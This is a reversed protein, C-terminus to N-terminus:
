RTRADVAASSAADTYQLAAPTGASSRRRWMAEALVSAGLIPLTAYALRPGTGTVFSRWWGVRRLEAVQALTRAAEPTAALDRQAEILASDVVCLVRVAWCWAPAGSATLARVEHERCVLEEAVRESYGRSRYSLWHSRLPEDDSSAGSTGPLGRAGPNVNRADFQLHVMEHVAEHWTCDDALGICRRGPSFYAGITRLHALLSRAARPLQDPHPPRDRLSTDVAVCYGLARARRAVGVFGPHGIARASACPWSRQPAQRDDLQAHDEDVALMRAPPLTGFAASLKWEAAVEDRETLM